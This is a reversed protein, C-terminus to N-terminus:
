KLLPFYKETQYAGPLIAVKKQAIVQTLIVLCILTVFLAKLKKM